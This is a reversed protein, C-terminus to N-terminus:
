KILVVQKMYNIEKGKVDKITLLVFYRGNRCMKSGILIRANADSPQRNLEDWNIEHDTTRGDWWLRYQIMKPINQMVVSAILDGVINYIRIKIKDLRQESVDPAFSICTGKPADRGLRQALSEFDAASKDPSFPNPLISLTSTLDLSQTLVAYRSFHAICASVTKKDSSTLSNALPKWQLSDPNWWGICYKHGSAASGTIDLILKISDSAHFQFVVGTQEKIDYASGV